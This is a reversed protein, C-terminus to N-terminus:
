EHPEMPRLVEKVHRLDLDVECCVRHMGILLSTFISFRMPEPMRRISQGLAALQAAM